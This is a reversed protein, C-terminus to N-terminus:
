KDIRELFFAKRINDWYPTCTFYIIKTNRSTKENMYDDQNFDYMKSSRIIYQDKNDFTIIDWEKWNNYIHYGSNETYKYSNHSFLYTINEWKKRTIFGYNFSDESDSILFKKVGDSLSYYDNWSLEIKTTEKVWDKLEKQEINISIKDPINKIEIPVYMQEYTFLAVKDNLLGYTLYSSLILIGFFTFIDIFTSVFRHM